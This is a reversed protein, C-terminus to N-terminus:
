KKRRREIEQMLEKPTAYRHVRGAKADESAKKEGEQWRKTWFYAQSAPVPIQPTLVITGDEARECRYLSIGESVLEKPLTIQNRRGLQLYKPEM